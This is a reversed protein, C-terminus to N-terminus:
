KNLRDLEICKILFRGMVSESEKTVDEGAEERKELEIAEDLIDTLEIFANRLEILNKGM